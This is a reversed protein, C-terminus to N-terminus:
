GATHTLASDPPYRSYALTNPFSKPKVLIIECTCPVFGRYSGLLLMLTQFSQLFIGCRTTLTQGMVIASYWFPCMGFFACELFLVNWFPWMGLHACELISHQLSTGITCRHLPPRTQWFDVRAARGHVVIFGLLHQSSKPM